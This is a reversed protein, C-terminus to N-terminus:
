GNCIVSSAKQRRASHPIRIFSSFTLFINLLNLFFVSWLLVTVFIGALWILHVWYLKPRAPGEVMRTVGVLMHTLALGVIVASLAMVYDFAHM